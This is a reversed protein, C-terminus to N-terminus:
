GAVVFAGIVEILSEDQVFASRHWEVARTRLKAIALAQATRAPAAIRAAKEMSCESGELLKTGLRPCFACLRLEGCAALDEGIAEGGTRLRESGLLQLDRDQNALPGRCPSRRM